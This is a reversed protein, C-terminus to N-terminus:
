EERGIGFWKNQRWMALSPADAAPTPWVYMGPVWVHATMPENWTWRGPMWVYGVPPPPPLPPPAVVLPPPPPAIVVPPPAAREQVIVEEETVTERSVIRKKKIKKTAVPRKERPIGDAAAPMSLALMSAAVLLAAVRFM